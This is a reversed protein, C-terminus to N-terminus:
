CRTGCAGQTHDVVGAPVPGRCRVRVPCRRVRAQEEAIRALHELGAFQFGPAQVRAHYQPIGPRTAEPSLRRLQERRHPPAYGMCRMTM